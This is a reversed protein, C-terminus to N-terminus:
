YSNRLPLILQLFNEEKKDTLIMPRNEKSMSLKIENSDVVKLLSILFSANLMLSLNSGSFEKVKIIEDSNGLEISKFSVIISDEKMNLKVIPKKEVMAIVIGRELADMMEKKDVVLWSDRPSKIIDYINPYDGDMIKTSFVFNGLKIMLNNDSLYLHVNEKFDVIDSLLYFVSSDITIKFSPGDFDYTIYSLKYSDTGVIHLKGDKSEIFVGNLISIKEKNQSVSHVIKTLISKFIIPELEIKEWSSYDFNINPYQEDDMININSDFSETKIKLVSNDVKEFLIDENKLKTIITAFLKSKILVSGEEIIKVNEKIESKCSVFGNSTIITIKNNKAQLLMGQIFPSIINSDILSNCTKISEIINKKNLIFKM